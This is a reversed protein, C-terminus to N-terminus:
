SIEESIDNAAVLKWFLTRMQKADFFTENAKLLPALKEKLALEDSFTAISHLPIEDGNLERRTYNVKLFHRLASTFGTNESSEDKSEFIYIGSEHLLLYDIKVVGEAVGNENPISLKKMLTYKREDLDCIECIARALADKGDVGDSEDENEEQFDIFTEVDKNSQEREKKAKSIFFIFAYLVVALLLIVTRTRMGNLEYYNYVGVSFVILLFLTTITSIMSKIYSFAGSPLLKRPALTAYVSYFGLIALIGLNQLSYVTKSPSVFGVKKALVARNYM